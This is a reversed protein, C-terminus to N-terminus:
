IPLRLDYALDCHRRLDALRPDHCCKCERRPSIWLWTHIPHAYRTSTALGTQVGDGLLYLAGGRPKTTLVEAKPASMPNSDPDIVNRRNATLPSAGAPTSSFSSSRTALCARSGPSNPMSSTSYPQLPPRCMKSVSKEKSFLTKASQRKKASRMSVLLTGPVTLFAYVSISSAARALPLGLPKMELCCFFSARSVTRCFSSWSMFLPRNRRDFSM